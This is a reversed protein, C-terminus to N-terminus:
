FGLIVWAHRSLNCTLPQSCATETTTSQAVKSGHAILQMGCRCASLSPACSSAAARCSQSEKCLSSACSSRTDHQKRAIHALHYLDTKHMLDSVTRASAYALVSFAPSFIMCHEAQITLSYEMSYKSCIHRSCCHIM